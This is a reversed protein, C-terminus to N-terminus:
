QRPSHRCGAVQPSGARKRHAQGPRVRAGHAVAARSARAGSLAGSILMGCGLCGILILANPWSLLASLFSQNVSRAAIAAVEVREGDIDFEIYGIQQGAQIPAVSVTQHFRLDPLPKDVREVVVLTEAAAVPVSPRAGRRIRAEEIPVGSVVVVREVYTDFAWDLLANTEEFRKESDLVVAIFRRAGRQAASALCYGAKGTWGTKVGICDSRMRLLQNTNVLRYGDPFGARRMVRERQTVIRAFTENELARQCAIAVDMASQYHGDEDLGHPNTFHSNRLGLEAAKENMMAAFAGVSGATHIALAVAADNGSRMLAMELLDHVTLREGEKLLCTSEGTEAAERSVTVAQELPCRDLVVLATMVKTISAVARPTHADKELLVQGSWGDLLVASKAALEPPPVARSGEAVLCVMVVLLARKM